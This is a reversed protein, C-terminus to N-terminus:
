FIILSFSNSDNICIVEMAELNSVIIIIVFNSFCEKFTSQTSISVFDIKCNPKDLKSDVTAASGLCSSHLRLEGATKDNIMAAAWQRLPHIVREEESCRDAVRDSRLPGIVIAGRRIALKKGGWGERGGRGCVNEEDDGEWSIM